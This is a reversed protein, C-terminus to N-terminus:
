SARSDLPAESKKAWCQTEIAMEKENGACFDVKRSCL